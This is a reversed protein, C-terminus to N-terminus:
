NDDKIWYEEFVDNEKWLRRKIDNNILDPFTALKNNKFLEIINLKYDDVM